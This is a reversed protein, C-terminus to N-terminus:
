RRPTPWNAQRAPRHTGARYAIGASETNDTGPTYRLEADKSLLLASSDSITGIDIPTFTTGDLSYEWLGSGTISVIAIGGIPDGSDVDTITTGHPTNIFASLSVTLPSNNSTRGMEIPAPDGPTLIPADNIATVNLTATDSDASFSTAGGTSGSQSLDVFDGNKGTTKDWAVYTFTAPANSDPNPTYRLKSGTTSLLLTHSESISGADVSIFPDNLKASYEWTGDGTFGTIAIGGAYPIQNVDTVTSTGAGGNILTIFFAASSLDFTISADEAVPGITPSGATLVPADNVIIQVNDGDTSFATTGGVKGSLPDSSSDSLDVLDGAAGTTMDWARFAVFAAGSSTGSPNYRLQADNPLLIAHADDVTLTHFTVGSDISYEWTGGGVVSTFSVAIGGVVAGPDSDVITTTGAGNNIFSSLPMTFPSGTTSYGVIPGQVASSDARTLVPATNVYVTLTSTDSTTSFASIGYNQNNQATVLQGSNGFTMDWAVYTIQPTETHTGDPTYLLKADKPLLLASSGNIKSTDITAFNTGDLSYKWTGLGTLSTIAIGGIQAGADTDTVTTTGSGNILSSVSITKPTITATGGLSNSNVATLVPAQNNTGVDPQVYVTFTRTATENTITDTATVTVTATGTSNTPASLRLVADTNDTIISASTIIVSNDPASYEGQQSDHVPIKAIAQRIDEGEVLLGFITYGGDLFRTPGSTVFFQSTNSNPQGTNALALVGSSTFKLDASIENAYPTVNYPAVKPDRYTGDPLFGGGQIMFNEIVRHFDLGNYFGQNVLSTITQVANPSLDSYLEFVMAGHINDVNDDVQLKLFTSEAPVSYTLNPNATTSNNVSVTYSIPDSASTGAASLALNLPTGAQVLQSGIVPFTVSLLQRSELPEFSARRNSNKSHNTRRSSFGRSFKSSHKRNM